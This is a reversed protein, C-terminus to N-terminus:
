LPPVRDFWPAAQELQAALALLTVLNPILMRIPVPRFRRQPPTPEPEYPPFITEM